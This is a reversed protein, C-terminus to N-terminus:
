SEVEVSNLVMEGSKPEAKDLAVYDPDNSTEVRIYRTWDTFERGLAKDRKAADVAFYFVITTM